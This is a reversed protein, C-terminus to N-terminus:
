AIRRWGEIGLSIIIAEDVKDMTEPSVTGWYRGFRSRDVTRIQNLLILSNNTLGGEPAKIEINVDYRSKDGSTLPAIIITPSYRNGLNNQIVLTPRIKGQESGRVPDLNALWIDGRRIQLSM